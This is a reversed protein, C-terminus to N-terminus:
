PELSKLLNLALSGTSCNARLAQRFQSCYFPNLNQM